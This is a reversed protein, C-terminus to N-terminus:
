CSNFMAAKILSLRRLFYVVIRKAISSVDSVGINTQKPYLSASAFAAVDRAGTNAHTRVLVFPALACVCVVHSSQWLTGRVWVANIRGKFFM